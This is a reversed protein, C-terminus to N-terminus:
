LRMGVAFVRVNHQTAVLNVKLVLADDSLLPSFFHCLFVPPYDHNLLLWADINTYDKVRPKM